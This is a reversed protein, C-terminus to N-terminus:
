QWQWVLYIEVYKEIKMCLYLFNMISYGNNM